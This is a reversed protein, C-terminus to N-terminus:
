KENGVEVAEATLLLIKEAWGINGSRVGGSFLVNFMFANERKEFSEEVEVLWLRGEGFSEVGEPPWHAQSITLRPM